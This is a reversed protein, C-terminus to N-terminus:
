STKKQSYANAIREIAELNRVFNDLWSFIDGPYTQIQYTRLLKRSIDTPDKQKLRENIIFNSM